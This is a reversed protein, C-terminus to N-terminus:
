PASAPVPAFARRGAPPAARCPPEAVPREVTARAPVESAPEVDAAGSATACPFPVVSPEVGGLGGVRTGPLGSPVYPLSAPNPRALTVTATRGVAQGFRIAREPQGLPPRGGMGAPAPKTVKARLHADDMAM